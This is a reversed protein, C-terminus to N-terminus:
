LRHLYSLGRVELVRSIVDVRAIARDCAARLHDILAQSADSVHGASLHEVVRMHEPLFPESPFQSASAEYIFTHAVLMSQYLRLAELLTGNGCYSLLEVHLEGELADLERGTLSPARLMADGLNKRIRLLLAPPAHEFAKALALPELTWRLEYLEGIYAPTLAPAKWRGRDDRKVLGSQHLRAMVERAVTRSVGFHRALDVEVIRWSAVSIREVIAKEVADHIPQWSPKSTLATEVPGEAAEVLINAPADEVIFGRGDSRRVRGEAALALLAQRVPARSVGLEQALPSELLRSGAPLAHSRIRQRLIALVRAHLRPTAGSAGPSEPGDRESSATM